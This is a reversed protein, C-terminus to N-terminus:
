YITDNRRYQKGNGAFRFGDRLCRPVDAACLCVRVISALMCVCVNCANKHRAVDIEHKKSRKKMTTVVSKVAEERFDGGFYGRPLRLAVRRVCM